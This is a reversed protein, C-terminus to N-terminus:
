GDGPKWTPPRIDNGEVLWVIPDVPDTAVMTCSGIVFDGERGVVNGSADLVAVNPDFRATYGSPWIIESRMGSSNDTAWTVQPDSPSGHLTADRGVGISCGGTWDLYTPLRGSSASPASLGSSLVLGFPVFVLVLGLVL